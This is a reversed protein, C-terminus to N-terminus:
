NGSIDRIEEVTFTMEFPVGDIEVGDVFQAYVDHITDPAASIQSFIVGGDDLFTAELVVVLPEDIMNTTEYVMTASNATTGTEIVTVDDSIQAAYDDSTWYDITSAPTTDYAQDVSIYVYGLGDTTQLTLVDYPPDESVIIASEYDVPFEWTAGDWTIVNGYTPSEWETDSILGMADWDGGSVPTSGDGTDPRGIGTDTEGEDTEDGMDPKSDGGRNTRSVGTDSTNEDDETDITGGRSTRSRDPDSDTEEDSEDPVDTGGRNTRSVGTGSEEETEDPTDMGGRSTRSRDSQNGSDDSVPTSSDVGVLDALVAADTDPLLSAGGLTVESQILELDAQFTSVDTFQMVVLDIDDIADLEFEYYVILPAGNLEASGLFWSHDATIEEDILEWSDYFEEMNGLTITHYESAENPGGILVMQFNSWGATFWIYEEQYTVSERLDYNEEIFTIQGSPGLDVEEGTLESVFTQDASTPQASASALPMAIVLMTAVLSFAFKLMRKM